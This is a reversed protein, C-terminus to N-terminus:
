REFLFPSFFDDVLIRLTEVNYNSHKPNGNMIEIIERVKSDTWKRLADPTNSKKEYRNMIPTVIDYIETDSLVDFAASFNKMLSDRDEDTCRPLYLRVDESTLPIRYYLKLCFLLKARHKHYLRLVLNFRRVEYEFIHKQEVANPEFVRHLNEQDVAIHELVRRHERLCINRVIVSFYTKFLSKGNYQSQMASIKELLRVNVDQVVDAFESARFLGGEIFKKVIIEVTTQYKLILAHPDSRLLEIDRDNETM